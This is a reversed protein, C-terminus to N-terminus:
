SRTWARRRSTRLPAMAASEIWGSGRCSGSQSGSEIGSSSASGSGSGARALQASVTRPIESARAPGRRGPAATGDEPWCSGLLLGRRAMGIRHVRESDAPDDGVLYCLHLAM